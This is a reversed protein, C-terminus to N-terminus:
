CRGSIIALGGDLLLQERPALSLAVLLHQMLIPWWKIAHLVAAVLWPRALQKSAGAGSRGCM